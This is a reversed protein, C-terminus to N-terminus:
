SRESSFGFLNFTFLFAVSLCLFVECFHIWKITKKNKRKKLAQAFVKALNSIFNMSVQFYFFYKFLVKELIKEKLFRGSMNFNRLLNLVRDVVIVRFRKRVVNCGM